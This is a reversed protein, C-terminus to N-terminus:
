LAIWSLKERVIEDKVQVAKEWVSDSNPYKYGATKIAAVTEDYYLSCSTSRYWEKVGGMFAIQSQPQQKIEEISQWILKLLKNM